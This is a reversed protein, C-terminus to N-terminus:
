HEFFSKKERSEPLDRHQFVFAVLQHPGCKLNVVMKALAHRFLNVLLAKFNFQTQSPNRKLDLLRQGNIVLLMPQFSAKLRIQQDVTLNYYLQLSDRFQNSVM